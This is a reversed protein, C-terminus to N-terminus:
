MGYVVEELSIVPTDVKDMLIEEVDDYAYIPTVVIVDATEDIQEVGVVKIEPHLGNGGNKDIAFVMEIDTNKLEEYLRCGLEGMGYIAIKKYGKMEFYESLSRGSNKWIMWQNMIDFYSKFKDIRSQSWDITKNLKGMTVGAGAAVGIAGSVLSLVVGTTKKM